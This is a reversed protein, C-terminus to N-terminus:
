AYAINDRPDNWLRISDRLVLSVTKQAQTLETKKEAKEQEDILLKVVRHVDMAAVGLREAIEAKLNNYKLREETQDSRFIQALEALLTEQKDKSPLSTSLAKPGPELKPGIIKRIESAAEVSPGVDAIPPAELVDTDTSPKADKSGCTLTAGCSRYRRRRLEGLTATGRRNLTLNNLLYFILARERLSMLM